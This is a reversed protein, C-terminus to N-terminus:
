PQKFRLGLFASIQSASIKDACFLDASSASYVFASKMLEIHKLFLSDVRGAFLFRIIHVKKDWQPHLHILQTIYFYVRM